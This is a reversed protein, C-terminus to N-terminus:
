CCLHCHKTFGTLCVLQGMRELMAPLSKVYVNSSGWWWKVSQPLSVRDASCMDSLQWLTLHLYQLGRLAQGVLVDMVLDKIIPCQQPVDALMNLITPLWPAEMWCPAVLILHRLQGNIHEALFKSLVLPVLALPLFVYSVEFTWPHSSANLGLAELPLLLKWLSIISANLLVLLHWCTWRQFAGFAFLWRLSFAGSWFCGIRPCIIQRWVSTPLFTHQFFLLVM